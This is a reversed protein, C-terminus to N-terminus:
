KKKTPQTPASKAPAKPLDPLAQPQMTGQVSSKLKLTKAKNDLTLGVSKIIGRPEEITVAKDTDATQADPVVHLYETTVTVPGVPAEGPASPGAERVARVNGTFVVDKRDGSLKGHAATVRFEPQGAETQALVPETFETTQDDGFHRASKGAILQTPRGRSDLTIAKFGEVYVDPDHRESGDRRPAPPQVQSDLWYTFAALGGLLLVPSWGTIRDLWSRTSTDRPM